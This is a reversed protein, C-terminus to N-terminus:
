HTSAPKPRCLQSRREEGRGFSVIPSYRAMLPGGLQTSPENLPSLAQPSHLPHLSPSWLSSHSQTPHEASKLCCDPANGFQHLPCLSPPLVTSTSFSRSHSHTHSEHAISFNSIPPCCFSKCKNESDILKMNVPVVASNIKQFQNKKSFANKFM